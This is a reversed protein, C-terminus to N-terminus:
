VEDNPRTIQDAIFERAIDAQTPVRHQCDCNRGLEGNNCHKERPLKNAAANVCTECVM